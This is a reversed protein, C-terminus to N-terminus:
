YKDETPKIALAEIAILAEKPLASVGLVTLAPFTGGTFFKTMIPYLNQEEKIDTLYVRIQALDTPLFGGDKVLNILNNFVAEAQKKFDPGALRGGNIVPLQQSIFLMKDPLDVMLAQPGCNLSPPTRRSIIAQHTKSRPGIAM